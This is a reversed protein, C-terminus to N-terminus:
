ANNKALEEVIKARIAPRMRELRWLLTNDFVIRGDPSTAICGGGPDGDTFEARFDTGPAAGEVRSRIEGLFAEDAVGRDGEGFKLVVGGGGIATVAEAALNLLSERYRERDERLRSLGEEIETFMRAVAEERANLLIRRSEIRATSVERMRIKEVRAEWGARVDQEIKEIERETKKEEAAAGRGANRILKGAQERADAIIKDTIAAEPGTGEMQTM